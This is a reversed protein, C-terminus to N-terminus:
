RLLGRMDHRGRFDIGMAQCVLSYLHGERMVTDRDPEYQAHREGACTSASRQLDLRTGWVLQTVAM